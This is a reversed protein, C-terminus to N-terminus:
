AVIAMSFVAVIVFTSILKTRISGMITQRIVVAGIALMALVSMLPILTNVEKLHVRFPPNWLEVVLIVLAGLMGVVIAKQRAIRPLVFSVLILSFITLYATILVYINAVLFAILVPAVIINIVYLIWAGLALQGRYIFRFGILSAIVMLSAFPILLQDAIDPQGGQIVFFTYLCFGLFLLSVASLIGAIGLAIQKQRSEAFGAGLIAESEKFGEGQRRTPTASAPLSEETAPPQLLLKTELDTIRAKLAEIQQISMNTLPEGEGTFVHEFRKQINKKMIEEEPDDNPKKAM